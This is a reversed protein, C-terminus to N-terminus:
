SLWKVTRRVGERLDVKEWKGLWEDMRYTDAKTNEVYSATKEVYTPAIHKGLVENIVAILENFSTAVGTGLNMVGRKESEAAAIIGHIVDDIYIFDRTQSGDGWVVPSKGKLMDQIFLSVVSALRGKREEGPGYGAFIRLGVCDVAGALSAMYECAVKCLAYPNNPMPTVWESQFNGYFSGYVNGSSPYILKAGTRNALVLVNWMGEITNRISANLNENFQIVSCSAGFHFIFDYEHEELLRIFRSSGVDISDVAIDFRHVTNRSTLLHEVLPRGIFGNAGTVLCRKGKM